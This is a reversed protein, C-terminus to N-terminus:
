EDGDNFLKLAGDEGQERRQDLHGTQDPVEDAVERHARRAQAEGSRITRSLCGRPHVILAGIALPEKSMAM